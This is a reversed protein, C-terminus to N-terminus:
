KEESDDKLNCAKRFSKRLEEKIEEPMAFTFGEEMRVEQKSSSVTVHFPQVMCLNEEVPPHRRAM